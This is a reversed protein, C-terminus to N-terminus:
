HPPNYHKVDVASASGVPLLSIIVSLIAMVIFFCGFTLRIRWSSIQIKPVNDRYHQLLIDKLSKPDEMHTDINDMIDGLSANIRNQQERLSSLDQGLSARMGQEYGKKFAEEEANKQKEKEQADKAPMSDSSNDRSVTPPTGPPTSTRMSSQKELSARRLTNAVASKMTTHAVAAQFRSRADKSCLDVLSWVSTLFEDEDLSSDSRLSRLSVARHTHPEYYSLDMSASPHLTAAGSGGLVKPLAIESVRRRAAKLLKITKATTPSLAGPSGPSLKGTFLSNQCVSASRRSLMDGGGPLDITSPALSRSDQLLKRAEELESHEREHVRRINEVHRIMIDVARSM